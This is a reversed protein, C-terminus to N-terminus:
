GEDKALPVGYLELRHDVLRFGHERAIREQLAEIEPSHFEIVVGTKLDILHDHHEEPVTEYRSRGDRFDHREIIGADEFLKVTRYVTSISIKADIKVSRRYLEEVDPHDASEELIRAIIRRQETMRMGREVCLEELSKPAESM